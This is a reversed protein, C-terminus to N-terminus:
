IREKVYSGPADEIPNLPVRAPVMKGSQPALWSIWDSWWSGKHETAGAVFDELTAPLADNTWHNYKMAAPPNVVGAIHGSGALLFRMPGSFHRTIEYVSKAPAIHDEKGAQIYSPTTVTDIDIPVGAVSIGGPKALLNDRYLDKLYTLHWKAPVNTADSNWYLLDFPFYDKGLLYNNVVYNWILDNSRLLNFTTAMTRGAGRRVMTPVRRLPAIPASGAAGMGGECAVTVSTRGHASPGADDITWVIARPAAPEASMASQAMM